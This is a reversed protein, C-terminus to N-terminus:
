RGDLFDKIWSKKYIAYRAIAKVNRRDIIQNDIKNYTLVDIYTIMSDPLPGSHKFPGFDVANAYAPAIGIYEKRKPLNILSDKSVEIAVNEFVLRAQSVKESDIAIYLISIGFLTDQTKPESGIPLFEGKEENYIVRELYFEVKWGTFEISQPIYNYYYTSWYCGSLLFLFIFLLAYKLKNYSKHM